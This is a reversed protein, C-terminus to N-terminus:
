LFFILKKTISNRRNKERFLHRPMHVHPLTDPSIYAAYHLQSSWMIVYFFHSKVCEAEKLRQYLMGEKGPDKEDSTM